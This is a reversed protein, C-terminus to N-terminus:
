VLRLAIRPVDYGMWNEEYAEAWAVRNDDAVWRAISEAEEWEPFHGLLAELDREDFRTWELRIADEIISNAIKKINM